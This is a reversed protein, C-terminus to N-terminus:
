FVLRLGLFLDLSSLDGTYNGAPTNVGDILSIDHKGLDVYRLGVDLLLSETLPCEIGAEAQWAFETNSGGGQVVGDTTYMGTRAAGIGAGVYFTCREYTYLDYYASLMGTEAKLKTSYFFTPTPPAFSDTVYNTSEYRSYAIDFRWQGFDMGAKLTGFFVGDDRDDNTNDFGGATNFGSSDFMSSSLGGSVGLYFDADDLMSQAVATSTILALASATFTLAKM